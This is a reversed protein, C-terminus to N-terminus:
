HQWTLVRSYVHQRDNLSVTQCFGGNEHDFDIGQSTMGVYNPTCATSHDDTNTCYHIEHTNFSTGRLDKSSRRTPEVLSHPLATLAIDNDSGYGTM